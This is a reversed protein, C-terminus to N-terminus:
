EIERIDRNKDAKVETEPQRMRQRGTEIKKKTRPLRMFGIVATSNNSFNTLIVWLCLQSQFMNESHKWMINM